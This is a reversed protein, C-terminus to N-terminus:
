SPEIAPHVCVGVAFANKARFFLIRPSPIMNNIKNKEEDEFTLKSM